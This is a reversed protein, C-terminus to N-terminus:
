LPLDRKSFLYIGLAYLIIAIGILIIMSFIVNEGAIIDTPNFLTLITFYKLDELKGGMNALMQVLYFIIPLGAGIIFYVKADNSICSAFYCISSISVHLIFLCVNMMIFKSVDLAGPHMINCTVVIIATAYIILLAISGLMFSAQTLVVKLRKNPTALLYAMSGKDVYSTVLKNALIITFIVPFMLLIFGYLYTSIFEILTGSGGAMGFAKMLEPMTKILEDFANTTSPDYMYVISLSYLTIIAMFIILLKYNAKIERKFLTLSIM